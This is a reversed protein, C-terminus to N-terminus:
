KAKRNVPSLDVKRLVIPSEPIQKPKFGIVEMVVCDARLPNAGGTRAPEAYTINSVSKNM